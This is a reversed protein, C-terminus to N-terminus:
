WTYESSWLTKLKSARLVVPTIGQDQWGGMIWSGLLPLERAQELAQIAGRFSIPRPRPMGVMLDVKPPRPRSKNKRKNKAAM